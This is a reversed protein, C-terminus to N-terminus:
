SKLKNALLNEDLTISITKYQKLSVKYGPLGKISKLHKVQTYNVLGATNFGSAYKVALMAGIELTEDNFEGKLIVHSGPLDKIHFWYDSPQAIKTVLHENQYNNKGVYFVNNNYQYTLPKVTKQKIKKVKKVKFGFPELMNTIEEHDLNDSELDYRFQEFLSILDKTESIQKELHSISRKATKFKKFIDQANENLTKTVDLKIIGNVTSIENYYENLNYGSSYIDNGINVLNLKDLSTNLQENLKFIRKQYNATRKNIFDLYKSNPKFNTTILYHILASLTEFDKTKTEFLNFWYFQNNTLNLTPKLEIDKIDLNNKYLYQSLLPSIGIYNKSLTLPELELSYAELSFTKKHTPFLTFELGPVISRSSHSVNKNYADIIINDKTLILNNYRGMLEFILTYTVIGELFDTKSFEFFVVRDDGHQSINKLTSGHLHKKLSQLFQNNLTKDNLLEQLFFSANPSNLKFNLFQRKGKLYFGLTFIDSSAMYVQDLRFNTVENNIENVLNKIFFGDIAM